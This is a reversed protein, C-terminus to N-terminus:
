PCIDTTNVFRDLDAVGHDYALDDLPEVLFVLRPPRGAISSVGGLSV